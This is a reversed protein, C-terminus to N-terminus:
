SQRVTVKKCYLTLPILKHQTGKKKKSIILDGIQKKTEMNYIEMNQSFCSNEIKPKRVYNFDYQPYNFWALCVVNTKKYIM